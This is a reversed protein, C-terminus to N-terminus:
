FSSPTRMPSKWRSTTSPKARVTIYLRTSIASSSSLVKMVWLVPSGQREWAGYRPIASPTTMMSRWLPAQSANYYTTHGSPETKGTDPKLTDDGKPKEPTETNGSSSAPKDVSFVQDAASGELATKLTLTKDDRIEFLIKTFDGAGTSEVDLTVVNEKVSWKGSIQYTGEKLSDTMVFSGDKGFWINAPERYGGATNYFTKGGLDAKNEEKKTCGSLVLIMCLLFFFLRKAKKM